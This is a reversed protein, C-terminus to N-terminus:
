RRVFNQLAGIFKQPSQEIPVKGIPKVKFRGNEAEHTVNLIWVTPYSSVKLSQAMGANQEKNGEPLQNHKSFDIELLVVSNEAWEKFVPTSFVNTELQHCLGCTDSAAFYVLIPKHDEVSQAYADNMNTFWEKHTANPSTDTAPSAGDSPKSSCAYLIVIALLTFSLVRLQQIIDM